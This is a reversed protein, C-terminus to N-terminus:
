SDLLDQIAERIAKPSAKTRALDLAAAIGKKVLHDENPQAAEHRPYNPVLKDDEIDIGYRHLLDTYDHLFHLFGEIDPSSLEPTDLTACIFGEVAYLSIGRHHASVVRLTAQEATLATSLALSHAIREVEEKKIDDLLDLLDFPNGM